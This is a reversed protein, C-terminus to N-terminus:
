QKLPFFCSPTMLELIPHFLSPCIVKNVDAELDADVDGDVDRALAADLKRGTQTWNNM